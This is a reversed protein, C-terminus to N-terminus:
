AHQQLWTALLNKCRGSMPGFQVGSKGAKSWVLFSKARLPEAGPIALKVSHERNWGKIEGRVCLGGESVNVTTLRLTHEDNELVVHLDASVRMNRYFDRLIMGHAAKLLAALERM